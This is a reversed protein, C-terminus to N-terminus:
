SGHQVVRLHRDEDGRHVAGVGMIEAMDGAAMAADFGDIRAQLAANQADTLEAAFAPAGLGVVLAAIGILRAFLGM